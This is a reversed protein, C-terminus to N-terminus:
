FNFCNHPFVGKFALSSLGQWNSRVYKNASSHLANEESVFGLVFGESAVYTSPNSVKGVSSNFCNKFSFFVSHVRKDLKASPPRRAGSHCSDINNPFTVSSLELGKAYTISM